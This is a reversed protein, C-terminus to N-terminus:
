YFNAIPESQNAICSIIALKHHLNLHLQKKYTKDCFICLKPDLQSNELVNSNVHSTSTSALDDVDDVRFQAESASTCSQLISTSQEARCTSPHLSSGSTHEKFSRYEAGEFGSQDQM